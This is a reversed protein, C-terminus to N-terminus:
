VGRCTLAAATSLIVFLISVVIAVKYRFNMESEVLTVVGRVFSLGFVLISATFGMGLLICYLWSHM